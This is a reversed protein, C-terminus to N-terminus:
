IWTRWSLLSMRSSERLNPIVWPVFRVVTEWAGRLSQTLMDLSTGVAWNVTIPPVFVETYISVWGRCQIMQASHSHATRAGLFTEEVISNTRAVWWPFPNGPQPHLTKKLSSGCDVM